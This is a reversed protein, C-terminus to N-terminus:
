VVEVKVATIDDMVPHGETHKKVNRLLSEVTVTPVSLHRLLREEGYEKLGPNRAEVVGDSYLFLRDGDALELRYEPYDKQM